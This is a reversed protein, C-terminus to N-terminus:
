KRRRAKAGKRPAATPGKSPGQQSYLLDCLARGIAEFEEIEIGGEVDEVTFDRLDKEHAVFAWVLTGLKSEYDFTQADLQEGIQQLSLGLSEKLRRLSGLTFKLEVGQEGIQVHSRAAM